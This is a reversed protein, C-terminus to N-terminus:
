SCLPFYGTTKGFKFKMFFLTAINWFSLSIMAALAAGIIGVKPILLLNLGINIVAAICIINRLAIQHGTMNMFLSTSGSISNIFQGLAIFVLSYYAVTFEKGFMIVIIPKGFLVLTLLIPATTWFILKSSKKAVYFLEDIRNSHYCESFKPASMSNIAALIFGTLTGLKVAIGYYGVETTTRFMGLMIVGTQGIFFNMTSTLLMPLSIFLIERIPMAYVQDNPSMRQKFVVEIILWGLVGTVAFSGLLAYIPINKTFFFLSLALLIILNSIQPLIQMFAFTKILKLGRIAQTNLLAMSKFVLFVAALALYFSLYQKSFVNKSIIDSGKFLVVSTILSICIILNQTKHYVKYASTPSHKVLHEPIFRLISTTTGLMTFISALTLFSNLVAIIGIAEAGYFRAVIISIILGLGAALIHGSLAWISGKLIESFKKDSILNIYKKKLFNFM